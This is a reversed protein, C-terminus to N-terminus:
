YKINSFGTATIGHRLGIAADAKLRVYPRSLSFQHIIHLACCPCNYNTTANDAYARQVM